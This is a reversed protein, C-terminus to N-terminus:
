LKITKVLSHTLEIFISIHPKIQFKRRYNEIALKGSSGTMHNQFKIILLQRDYYFDRGLTAVKIISNFFM